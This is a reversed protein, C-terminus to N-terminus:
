LRATQYGCTLLQAELHRHREALLETPHMRVQTGRPPLWFKGVLQLSAHRRLSGFEPLLFDRSHRSPSATTITLAPASITLTLANSTGGGPSPNVVSIRATGPQMVDSAQIVTRLQSRSVLTVNRNSNGFRITSQTLFGSGNVTLTFDASGAAVSTPSISSIVPVPNNITFSVKNSVEIDDEGDQNTVTIDATGAVTLDSAPIDAELREGSLARTTRGAGNWRVRSSSNFRDGLVLLKFGPDGAIFSTPTISSIHPKPAAQITGVSSLVGILIWLKAPSMFNSQPRKGEPYNM